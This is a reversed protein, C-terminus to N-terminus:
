ARLFGRETAKVVAEVRRRVGLNKCAKAIHEDVVYTSIALISAIEPSSKGARVWQLCQRQRDTLPNKKAKARTNGPRRNLIAGSM